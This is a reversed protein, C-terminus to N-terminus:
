IRGPHGTSISPAVPISIPSPVFPPPAYGEKETQHIHWARFGLQVFYCIAQADEASAADCEVTKKTNALQRCWVCVPM